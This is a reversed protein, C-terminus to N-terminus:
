GRAQLELIAERLQKALEKRDDTARQFKGFRLTAHVSKKGLLHILHPFFTHNGWYCVEQKANGDPLEYHIWATAIEHGGRLAPELLSARFPLVPQGDSSTGEPFVVVLM